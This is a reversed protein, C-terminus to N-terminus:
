MTPEYVTGIAKSVKNIFNNTVSAGHKAIAGWSSKDSM